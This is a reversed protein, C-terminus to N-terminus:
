EDHGSVAPARAIAFTPPSISAPSTPPSPPSSPRHGARAGYGHHFFLPPPAAPASEPIRVPPPPSSATPSLLSCAVRRGPGSARAASAVGDERERRGRGGDNWRSCVSVFSSSSSESLKRQESLWEVGRRGARSIGCSGRRQHSLSVPHGASQEAPSSVQPTWSRACETCM